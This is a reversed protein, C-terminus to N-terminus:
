SVSEEKMWAPHGGMQPNSFTHNGKSDCSYSYTYPNGEVDKTFAQSGNAGVLHHGLQMGVASALEKYPYLAPVGSSAQEYPYDLNKDAKSRRGFVIGRSAEAKALSENDRKDQAACTADAVADARIQAGLRAARERLDKDHAAVIKQGAVKAVSRRAADSAALLVAAPPRTTAQQAAARASVQTADGGYAPYTVVPAVDILDVDTLTRRPIPKGTEPDTTTDWSDGGPPIHFAFSCQDHDGRVVSAHVDRHMSNGPDLICCFNLGKSDSNLILTGSKTRGLIHNQSHNFTAKVDAGERLSRSFAGPAVQELFAGSRDNIKTPTNYSACRGTLEFKGAAKSARVETARLTGRTEIQNTVVPM